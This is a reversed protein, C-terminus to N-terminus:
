APPELGAEGCVRPVLDWAPGEKGALQGAVTRGWSEVRKRNLRAADELKVSRGSTILVTLSDPKEEAPYASAVIGRGKFYDISVQVRNCANHVCNAPTTPNVPKVTMLITNADAM